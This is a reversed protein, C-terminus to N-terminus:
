RNKGPRNRSCPNWSLHQLRMVRLRFEATCSDAGAAPVPALGRMSGVLKAPPRANDARGGGHGTLLKVGAGAAGIAGRRRLGLTSGCM